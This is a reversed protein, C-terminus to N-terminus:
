QINEVFEHQVSAIQAMIRQILAMFGGTEVALMFQSVELLEGGTM